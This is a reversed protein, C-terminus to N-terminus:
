FSKVQTTYSKLTIDDQAVGAPINASYVPTGAHPSTQSVIGRTPDLSLTVYVNPAQNWQDLIWGEGLPGTYGYQSVNANAPPIQQIVFNANVTKSTLATLDYDGQVTLPLNLGFERRVQNVQSQTAHLGAALRAPDGPVLHSVLFTLVLMGFLVLVLQGLRRVIFALM